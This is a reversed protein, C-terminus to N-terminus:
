IKSINERNDEFCNERQDSTFSKESYLCLNAREDVSLEFEIGCGIGFDMVELDEPCNRRIRAMQINTRTQELDM